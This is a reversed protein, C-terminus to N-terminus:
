HVVVLLWGANVLEVLVGAAAVDRRNAICCLPAGEARTAPVLVGVSEAILDVGVRDGPHIRGKDLVDLEVLVVQRRGDLRKGLEM